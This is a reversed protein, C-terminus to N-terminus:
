LMDPDRYASATISGYTKFNIPCPSNRSSASPKIIDCEVKTPLEPAEIAFDHLIGHESLKPLVLRQPVRTDVLEEPDSPVTRFSVLIKNSNL